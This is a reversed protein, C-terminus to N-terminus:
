DEFILFTIFHKLFQRNIQATKFHNNDKRTRIQLKNRNAIAGQERDAKQVKVRNSGKTVTESSLASSELIVVSQLKNGAWQVGVVTARAIDDQQTHTCTQQLM